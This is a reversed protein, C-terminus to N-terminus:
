KKRIRYTYLKGNSSILRLDFKASTTHLNLNEVAIM